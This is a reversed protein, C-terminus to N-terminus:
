LITKAHRILEGFEDPTLYARGDWKTGALQAGVSPGIGLELVYLKKLDTKVKEGPRVPTEVINPVPLPFPSAAACVGPVLWPKVAGLADFHRKLLIPDLNKLSQSLDLPNSWGKPPDQWWQGKVKDFAALTQSKTVAGLKMLWSRIALAAARDFPKKRFTLLADRGMYTGLLNSYNDEPSFASYKEGLFSTVIEHWVALQYAIRQALYVCVEDSRKEGQAQFKVTRTSDKECTLELTGGAPLLRKAHVALYGTWDLWDRSHGLDVFGGRCTYIFGSSESGTFM